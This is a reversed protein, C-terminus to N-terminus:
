ALQADAAALTNQYPREDIEFLSDGAKIEADLEISPDFAIKTLYGVVRARIEVSDVADLRGTFDQFDTVDKM